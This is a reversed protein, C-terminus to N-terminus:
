ATAAARGKQWWFTFLIFVAYCIWVAVTVTDPRARYGTLAAALGGPGRGDDLVASTDWLPAGFPLVGAAVLHDAGAVVLSLAILLLAVESAAFFLRWSLWRRAGQIAALTALALVLALAIGGLVPEWGAASAAALMGGLFIVTEVGERAVAFLAIAALGWLRGGSLAADAERELDRRLGRAHRRMWLVMQVILGAALFVLVTQLMDEAEPPLTSAAGTLAVAFVAATALGAVAGGWLFVFAIRGAQRQRLWAHLIGIVLLAEVSERWVIITTQTFM